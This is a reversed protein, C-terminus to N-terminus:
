ARLDLYMHVEDVDGAETRLARPEVGVTRFGLSQYLRRAPEQTTAVSLLVLDVGPVLRIEDILRSLIQRSLTRGRYEPAVFVGWIVGKHRRKRRSERYFGATGVLEDGDFAGIVFGGESGDLRAAHDEITAEDHECPSEGFAAPETILAQRRLRAFRGADAPQLRRLQV